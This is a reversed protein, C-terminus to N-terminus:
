AYLLSTQAMSRDSLIVYTKPDIIAPVPIHCRYLLITSHECLLTSVDAAPYIIKMLSHNYLATSCAPSYVCQATKPLILLRTTSTQPCLTLFINIHIYTMNSKLPEEQLVRSHLLYSIVAKLLCRHTQCASLHTAQGEARQEGVIITVMITSNGVICAPLFSNHGALTNASLAAACRDAPATNPDKHISALAEQYPRLQHCSVM